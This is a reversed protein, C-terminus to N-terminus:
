FVKQSPDGHPIEFRLRMEMFLPCELQIERLEQPGTGTWGDNSAYLLILKRLSKQRPVARWIILPFNWRIELEELRHSSEMFSAIDQSMLVQEDQENATSYHHGSQHIRLTRLAVLSSARVTM